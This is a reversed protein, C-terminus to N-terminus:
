MSKLKELEEQNEKIKKNYSENLEKMKEEYEKEYKEKLEKEM